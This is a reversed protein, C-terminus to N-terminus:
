QCYEGMAELEVDTRQKALKWDVYCCIADDLYSEVVSWYNETLKVFM